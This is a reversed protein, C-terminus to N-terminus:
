VIGGHVGWEVGQSQTCQCKRQHRQHTCSTNNLGHRYVEISQAFYNYMFHNVM